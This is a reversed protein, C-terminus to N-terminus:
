RGDPASTYNPCHRSLQNWVSAVAAASTEAEIKRATANDLYNNERRLVTFDDGGPLQFLVMFGCDRDVNALQGVLDVAAYVGPFPGSAPDKTWTIKLARWFKVPGALARFREADHVFQELKIERKLADAQLGYAEAYRGDDIADLYAQATKVARRRQEATPIWGPSSDSTVNIEGMAASPTEFTGAAIAAPAGGIAFALAGSFILRKM